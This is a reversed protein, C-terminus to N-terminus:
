GEANAGGVHGGELVLSVALENADADRDDPELWKDKEEEGDGVVPLPDIHRWAPASALLSGLMASIRSAWWVVGVSLAMGGFKVSDLLVQLQQQAEDQFGEAFAPAVEWDVPASARYELPAAAVNFLQLVPDVPPAQDYDNNSLVPQVVKVLVHRAEARKLQTIVEALENSEADPRGPSFVPPTPAQPAEAPAEPAAAAPEVPEIPPPPEQAPEPQAPEESLVIAGFSISAAAPGYVLAGDSVQVSYAPATGGGNHVFVVQGADLQAQTFSSIAAGPASSLEFRGNAVGSVTYVLSALPTDIDSASLNGPGFTVAAGQDITLSNAGLVPADNVPNVTITFVQPAAVDVGSNATGGNDGLVVTVNAVGNANAAAVYTLNGAADITPQVDFLAINDNSVSYSLVQGAEDPGGGAGGPAFAMIVQPGADENVAQNAGVTPVPADNVAVVTITFSQLGSTDVGGNAVGGNDTVAVTVTAVANADPAATYTLNGSADIAPQVSFLANNDNTLSYTFSQGAEDAGGGPSAAAFSAIAQAGVDELVSVNGGLAMGPADNLANVTVTFTTEVFQGGPDTARVTLDSTGNANAAYSLTLTGAVGDVTTASFLGPNTNGTVSYTLGADADEVDAFAAFLDIVSPAADENVTVNAVGGTTPQDNVPNVAITLTAEVFQGGTDTARVTIDSTGNANAAYGLTLTGAAGDIATASFLSPNTNGTITYTLAPDADEVDAFAAFLDVVSPATDENVNVNGIGGTTPQDNVPTVTITFTQTPSTDDGGNAVGGSDTVYVSVTASGFANAAATYTLNGSADSTPQVSFLANNSNSVTYTFTQVAEDAGGGPLANAFGNVTQAGADELLTQNGAVTFSPEDNVANVTLTFTTEVFQGGTDTARVTIDSAGNVNAAYSLTLTGAVGNITAGSFLGPNTNGAITYTLAADADEVDAFAAFLDIVGPAADENVTVDGISGTPQDNVPTVTIAFTQTPATDDGGNAVGGSDTVYVSVTATGFANAAATYTLNGAADITPQVSFLANNDNSVAYTFTQGAEDANGGPLAAAFGNVTQAGADEPVTQDGGLTFVPEDNVANVTVTFTTEVFQGGTDTARVTIDAAGNSDAAHDLTLTGAVGNVTVASFLGPNTNGTISYTLAADADEVDAFAAFLDIASPAADENVTINAISGVPPDNVPNVTVTFTTEVFLGGTDTARLTVDATGSANAAYGLTLTGAVGNITAASFLAPNTNGTVTYVLASDADEIDAFAAFLNVVSPAADENVNINAIGSTTPADNIPNVVITATALGGGLGTDLPATSAQVQFSGNATSNASPTFRLGANGQAVTIFDGSSVVTSGDSQYLTGGSIATIKFHTVEAGDAANRSIVLGSTTQTDENTTANTVSPTDGVPTVSTDLVVSGASWKGTGGISASINSSASFSVGGASGDALRITLSGPTGGYDAAPLFRLYYSSPLLMAGTDGLPATPVNNWSSGNSSYQWTGQAATAANGIIAVGSLATAQTLDAADGYNASFLASVVAGPPNATDELVAALAASGSATPADNVANVTITVMALNSTSTGDSARYTFTDTGFFDAAPVYTFSGDANLTFSSASTPSSVLVATIADGNADFDNNLVGRASQQPGFTIFTDAVSAYQANIWNASRATTAIGVDDLAGDFYRAAVGPKGFQLATDWGARSTRALTGNDTGVAIGDLYMTASPATSLNSVVVSVYHWGATDAFPTQIQLVGSDVPADVDGLFFSLYNDSNTNFATVSGLSIHMEQNTAEGGPQGFGNAGSMGEWLLHHAYNTADANFWTGITFSDATKLVTSSTQVYAGTGNFDRGQASEGAIAITGSDSATNLGTSDVVDGNLHWYGNYGNSWVAAPNQADAAVPNGYAMWIFDSNSSADIQPVKVWVYSTGGPNWSEIEYTLAAGDPDYFRLDAGNAQMASYDIRSSDLKVLVPFNILNDDRTLNNFSLARRYQWTQAGVTLSGDENVSYADSAAAPAANGAVLIGTGFVRPDYYAADPDPTWSLKGDRAAGDDDDNVQVSIGIQGAAAPTTGLTTWPVAIEYVYGSATNMYGSLVGATSANSNIGTYVAPDNWGFGFQFDGSYTNSKSDDPDIFLEISDDDWRNGPSDSVRVNDTVDVLVYLYNADWLTKWSGSLDAAGSVTGQAPYSVAQSVANSWQAEVTGDITVPTGAALIPMVGVGGVRLAASFESTDGTTLDTATATIYEGVSVNSTDYTFYAKGSGDTSVTTAGLFRQGEGHGSGDAVTNAFLEIRFSRSATSQLAGTIHTSAASAAASTLDPYNQLGNAGTDSDNGDNATVGTADLDIGLGGNSYISNGLIRNGTTGAITVAVGKGGNGAIVNGEGSATGGVTNNTANGFIAVGQNTNGLSVTGTVDLGIINGIVLNGSSAGLIQVGDVTNASIVNRDGASTGGIINNTSSSSIFVGVQNGAAATGAANTGLFNGAILNGSSGLIRVASSAFNGIELGRITSGSSGADLVLGAVGGGAIAGDLAILPKGSFGPQTSADIVVADSITPLASTLSITHVGPGAINFAITDAGGSGNALAIADRLTGAGSDATSTVTYTALTGMYSRQEPVSLALPTEVAGTSYELIWDGGRAVSGTLNESAAVDAGTLRALAQVLAKGDASAAVDCGYILIDAGESLANGWAKIQTASKLLSALDLTSGALQVMGQSGHSILHVAAVESRAALTSSIQAIGDVGHDLLVVETNQENGSRARIDEILKRYDPTAADVFVIEHRRQTQQVQLDPSFDGSPELTRQETGPALPVADALGPAFDASYLIRPELTEVVPRRSKGRLRKSHQKM